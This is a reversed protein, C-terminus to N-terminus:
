PYVYVGKLEKKHWKMLWQRHIDEPDIDQFREPYCWKAIYLIGIPARPGSWIEYSLLYLKGTKVAEIKNWVPRSMLINWFAAVPEVDSIGYGTKVWGSSAAKIIVDPNKDVVWEASIIPFPVPQETVINGVGATRLIGDAGSGESVTAYDGYGEAYVRIKRKLGKLRTAVENLYKQYFKIYEEAEREKGVIKGLVRIERALDEIRYCPIRAVPIGLPALKSELADESLWMDYYLVIDPRLEIIKEVSPSQPSGVVPKNKLESLLNSCADAIHDSVGVIKDQVQLACLIEAADSNIAVIREAPILINVKNKYADTITFVRKSEAAPGISPFCSIFMFAASIITKTLLRM